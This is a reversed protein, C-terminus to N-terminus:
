SANPIKHTQSLNIIQLKLRELTSRHNDNEDNETNVDDLYELLSVIDIKPRKAMQKYNHTDELAACTM